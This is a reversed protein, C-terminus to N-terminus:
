SNRRRSKRPNLQSSLVRKRRNPRRPSLERKICRPMNGREAFFDFVSVMLLLLLSGGGASFIVYSFFDPAPLPTNSSKVVLTAGCSIVTGALAGGILIGPLQRHGRTISWYSALLAPVFIFTTVSFSRGYIADLITGAIAAAPVGYKWGYAMAIVISCFCSFGCFIFFNGVLLDLLLFLATLAITIFIKM